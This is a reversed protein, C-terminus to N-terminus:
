HTCSGIWFRSDSVRSAGFHLGGSHVAGFHLGAFHLRGTLALGSGFDTARSELVGFRLWESHLSGCHM